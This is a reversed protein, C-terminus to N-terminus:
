CDKVINSVTMHSVGVAEAIERLSMGDFEYAQRIVENRREIAKRVKDGARVLERETLTSM